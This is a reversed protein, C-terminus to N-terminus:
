VWYKCAIKIRVGRADYEICAGNRRISKKYLEYLTVMLLDKRVFGLRGFLWCLVKKM